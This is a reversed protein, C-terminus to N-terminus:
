YGATTLLTQTTQVSGSYLYAGWGITFLANGYLAHELASIVISGTRRYTSLFLYGGPLTLALAWPNQFPLHALSFLGAGVLLSLHASHFLAAYRTEFLTRYILTQPYVSIVPYVFMVLVWLRPHEHPLRFLLAPNLQSLLLTLAGCAIMWRVLIWMLDIRPISLHHLRRLNVDRARALVGFTATGIVWLVPILVKPPLLFTMILPVGVYLAACEMLRIHQIMMRM